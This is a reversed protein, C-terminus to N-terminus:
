NKMVIIPSKVKHTGDFWILSSFIVTQNLIERGIITVVFSQKEHLSRFKLLKPQVEIKIKPNQHILTAKYISNSFGVNTVIRHIKAQFDKNHSAVPIVM